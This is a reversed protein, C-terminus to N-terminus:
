PGPRLFLRGASPPPHDGWPDLRCHPEDLVEKTLLDGEILILPALDLVVSARKCFHGVPMWPRSSIVPPPSGRPRAVSTHPPAPQPLVRSAESNRTRPAVSNPSAPTNTDKSSVSTSSFTFTADNPKSKALRTLRFFITSSCM